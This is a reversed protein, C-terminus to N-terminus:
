SYVLNCVVDDSELVESMSYWVEPIAEIDKITNEANFYITNETIDISYPRRENWYESTWRVNRYSTDGEALIISINSGDHQIHESNGSTLIMSMTNYMPHTDLLMLEKLNYHAIDSVYQYLTISKYAIIDLKSMLYDNGIYGEQVDFRYTNSFDTYDGLWVDIYVEYILGRYDPYLYLNSGILEMPEDKDILVGGRYRDDISINSLRYNMNIDEVGKVFYNNLDIGVDMNCTEKVYKMIVMCKDGYQTLEGEISSEYIDYEFVSNSEGLGSSNVYLNSQGSDINVRYINNNATAVYMIDDSIEISKPTDINMVIEYNIGAGAVMDVKLRSIRNNDIECMYLYEENNSKYVAMDVINSGIEILNEVNCNMIYVYELSVTDVGIDRLVYGVGSYKESSRLKISNLLQDDQYFYKYDKYIEGNSTIIFMYSMNMNIYSNVGLGDNLIGLMKLKMCEVDVIGDIRVNDVYYYSNVNDNMISITYYQDECYMYLKDESRYINCINDIGQLDYSSVIVDSFNYNSTLLRIYTDDLIVQFTKDFVEIEKINSFQIGSNNVNLKRKNIVGNYNEKSEYTHYNTFTDYREITINKLYQNNYVGRSLSVETINHKTYDLGSTIYDESVPNNYNDFIIKIINNNNYSCVYLDNDILKIDNIDNEDDYVERFINSNERSIELIVNSNEHTKYVCYVYEENVCISKPNIYGVNSFYDEEPIRTLSNYGTELNTIDMYRISETAQDSVYLTSDGRLMGMKYWGKTGSEDNVSIKYGTKGIDGESIRPLAVIGEDEITMLLMTDSVILMDNVSSAKTESDASNYIQTSDDDKIIDFLNSTIYEGTIIDALMLQKTNSRYFLIEKNNPYIDFMDIIIQDPTTDVQHGDIGTFDIFGYTDELHNYINIKYNFTSDNLSDEEIIFMLDNMYSMAIQIPKNTGKFKDLRLRDYNIITHGVSEEYTPVELINTIGSYSNNFTMVVQMEGIRTKVKKEIIGTEGVVLVDM